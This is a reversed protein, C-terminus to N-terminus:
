VSPDVYTKWETQLDQLTVKLVKHVFVDGSLGQIVLHGQNDMFVDEIQFLDHGYLVCTSLPTITHRPSVRVGVFRYVNKRPEVITFFLEPDIAKFSIVPEHQLHKYQRKNEVNDVKFVPTLQIVHTGTAGFSSLPTKKPDYSPCEDLSQTLNYRKHYDTWPYPQRTPSYEESKYRYGSGVSGDPVQWSSYVSSLWEDEHTPFPIIANHPYHHMKAVNRWHTTPFWHKFHVDVSNGDVRAFTIYSTAKDDELDPGTLKDSRCTVIGHRELMKALHGTVVEADEAHADLDADHDYEILAQERRIGLLSGFSVYVQVRNYHFQNVIDVLNIWDTYPRFEGIESWKPTQTIEPTPLPTDQPNHSVRSEETSKTLYLVTMTIGYALLAFIVGIVYYNMKNKRM